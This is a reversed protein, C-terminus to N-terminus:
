NLVSRNRISNQKNSQSDTNLEEGFYCLSVQSEKFPNYSPIYHVYGAAHLKKLCKHYTAKSGIKSIRMLEDRSISVPNKFRNCNWSQFLAIYLSIHTPKLTEDNSVKDFFETLHKIYNM